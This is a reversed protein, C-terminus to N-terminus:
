FEKINAHSNEPLKLGAFKEPHIIKALIEVGTITRISPKSFCSNADVAFVKQEKVVQLENWRQNESLFKNYEEVTRKTDFGCPMLIIIEPNANIIEDFEMRRSHEGIKSIMNEGGAFEIMQPVWHGATFFPEIWEIAVVKPRKEYQTNQIKHLRKELSECLERGKTQMGIIGSLDKVSQLIESLNHPDMSHIQPKKDLSEIAQQVQNTHAACVECTTQSVILDPEANKLNEKNLKFIDKGEKLLKSTIADIEKSDLKEPDVVSTIIRPKKKAGEPYLCEHTVGYLIDQAGLEFLLETASPLFSVIRQIM